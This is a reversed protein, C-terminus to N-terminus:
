RPCRAACTAPRIASAAVRLWGYRFVQGCNGLARHATELAGRSEIRRVVTLLEPAAVEAIPSRWDLPLHRARVAPHHPRRPEGGLYRFVQRVVGAGGGRLQKGGQGGAGVEPRATKARTSAM